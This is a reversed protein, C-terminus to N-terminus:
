LSETVAPEIQTPTPVPVETNGAIDSPSPDTETHQQEDKWLSDYEEDNDNHLMAAAKAAMYLKFNYERLKNEDKAPVKAGSAIRRYVTLMKGFEAAGEAAAESQQKISEGTYVAIETASIREMIKCAAEYEADVASLERSIEVRDFSPISNENQKLLETLTQKQTRLTDLHATYIKKATEIKM